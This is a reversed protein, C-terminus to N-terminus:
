KTVEEMKPRSVGSCGIRLIKIDYDVGSRGGHKGYNERPTWMAMYGQWWLSDNPRIRESVENRKVYVACRDDLRQRDVVNVWIRDSLKIVEIVAGGVV